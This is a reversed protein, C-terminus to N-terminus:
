PHTHHMSEAGLGSLFFRWREELDRWLGIMIAQGVSDAPPDVAFDMPIIFASLIDRHAPHFLNDTDGPTKMRVMMVFLSIQPTGHHESYWNPGPRPFAIAAVPGGAGAKRLRSRFTASGVLRDRIEAAFGPDIRTRLIPAQVMVLRAQSYRGPVSVTNPTEAARPLRSFQKLFHNWRNEGPFGPGAINAQEVVIDQDEPRNLDVRAVCGGVITRKSRDGLTEAITAQPAPTCRMLILRVRDSGHPDSGPGRGGPAGGAYMGPGPDDVGKPPEYPGCFIIAVDPGPKDLFDLFEDLKASKRARQLVHEAFGSASANRYPGRVVAIRGAQVFPVGGGVGATMELNMAADRAPGLDVMATMYPVTRYATKITQIMWMLSFCIAMTLVFGGGIRVPAPLKVSPLKARLPRLFRDGPFIFSTRKRYERYDDGFLRVCTREESKTLYYYLFMMAFFAIFMIARGWALLLGFGFMTLAIYQPHRVFRYLGGTVIGSRRFKAWYIQGAGICFVLLGGVVLVPGVWGLTLVPFVFHTLWSTSPNRNLTQIQLVSGYLFGAFPLLMWIPELIVFLTLVKVLGRGIKGLLSRPSDKDASTQTPNM